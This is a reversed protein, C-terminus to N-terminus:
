QAAGILNEWAMGAGYFVATWAMLSLVLALTVVVGRLSM